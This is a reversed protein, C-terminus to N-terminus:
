LIWWGTTRSHTTFPTGVGRMVQLFCPDMRAPFLGLDAGCMVEFCKM